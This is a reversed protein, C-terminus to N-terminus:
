SGSPAPRPTVDVSVSGTPREAVPLEVTLLGAHYRASTRRADVPAPLRLRREFPGWEIEAHQYARRGEPRRREGRIVLLDADLLIEVEEPEVGAIDIEVSIVPPEGSVFVDTAPRGAGAGRAGGVLEALLRDFEGHMRGPAPYSDRDRV